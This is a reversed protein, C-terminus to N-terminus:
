GGVEPGNVKKELFSNVAPNDAVRIIVAESKPEEVLQWEHKEGDDQIGYLRRVVNDVFETRPQGFSIRMILFSPQGEATTVVVRTETAARPIKATGLGHAVRTSTIMMEKTKPGRWNM